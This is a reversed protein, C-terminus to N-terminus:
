RSGIQSLSIKVLRKRLTTTGNGLQGYNNAGWTYLEGAANIALSHTIGASLASFLPKPTPLPLPEENNNISIDNDPPKDLETIILDGHEFCTTLCFLLLAVM